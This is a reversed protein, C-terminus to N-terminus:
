KKVKKMRTINQQSFTYFLDVYMLICFLSENKYYLNNLFAGHCRIYCLFYAFM